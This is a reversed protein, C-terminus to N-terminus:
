QIRKYVHELELAIDKFTMTSMLHDQAHVMIIQIEIQTGGAFAQLLETQSQHALVLEAEAQEMKSQAQAFNGERMCIMAEHINTRANGSHLIITFAVLQSQSEEMKAM